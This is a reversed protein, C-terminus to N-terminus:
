KSWYAYRLLLKTVLLIDSSQYVRMLKLKFNLIISLAEIVELKFHTVSTM